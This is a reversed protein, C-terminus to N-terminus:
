KKRRKKAKPRQVLKRMKDERKAIMERMIKTKKDSDMFKSSM